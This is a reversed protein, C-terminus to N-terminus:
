AGEVIQCTGTQSVQLVAIKEGPSIQFYEYSSGKLIFSSSTATPNQGVAVYVDQSCDIRFITTSALMATSQQSSASTAIRQVNGLRIAPFGLSSTAAPQVSM